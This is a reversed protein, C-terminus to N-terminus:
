SFPVQSIVSVSIWIALGIGGLISLVILAIAAWLVPDNRGTRSKVVVARGIPYVYNSLFAWAWHFPRPIGRRGLERWDLYAFLVTLAFLIWPLISSLLFAPSTALLLAADRDPRGTVPDIRFVDSWPIFLAPLIGLLPLLLVLWIWVTNTATGAPAAVQQGAGTYPLESGVAVPQTTSRHETWAAGDWWRLQQPNEPDTYWGPRAADPTSV